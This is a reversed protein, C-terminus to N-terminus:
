GPNGNSGVIVEPDSIFIQPDNSGCDVELYFSLKCQVPKDFRVGGKVSYGSSYRGWPCNSPPSGNFSTSQLYPNGNKGLASWDSTNSVQVLSGPTYVEATDLYSFSMNLTSPMPSSSSAPGLDWIFFNLSDGVQFNFWAATDGAQDKALAYQLFRYKDSAHNPDWVSGIFPSGWQFGLHVYWTAM